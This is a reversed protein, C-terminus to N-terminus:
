LPVMFLPSDGYFFSRMKHSLVFSELSVAQRQAFEQCPFRGINGTGAYEEDDGGIHRNEARVIQAHCRQCNTVDDQDAVDNVEERIQDCSIDDVVGSGLPALGTRVLQTGDAHSQTGRQDEDSGCAPAIGQLDDPHEAHVSEQETDEIGEAGTGIHRVQDACKVVVTGEDTLNGGVAADDGGHTGHDNRQGEGLHHCLQSGSITAPGCQNQNVHDRQGNQTQQAKDEDLLIRGDIGLLDLALHVALVDPHYAQSYRSIMNKKWVM